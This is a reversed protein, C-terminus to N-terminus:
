RGRLRETLYDWLLVIIRGSRTVVQGQVTYGRRFQDLGVESLQNRDLTVLVRYMGPVGAGGQAGAPAGAEAGPAGFPEPAVYSVIGRLTERESPDFAQVEVQVSDGLRIRHVDRESVMLTVRWDGLDGVEMVPEGKQIVAGDLRDVQETLVVGGRPAVVDMRGLRERTATIQAALQDMQAGVRERDFRSLDVTEGQSRALRLEAEAARVDGVAQDLAIHRGAVHSRLLSDVNTSGLDYEIMRQRLLARSSVLRAQAQDVRDGQQRREIPTSSASRQRDIGAARYQAQLEALQTELDLRDLRLVTDGPQVTDGTEVLVERVQGSEEARVPFIRVPEMVGSAEVTVNMSFVAAIGLFGLVLAVLTGLTWTVARRVFTVGPQGEDGLDPLRLPIVKGQPDPLRNPEM